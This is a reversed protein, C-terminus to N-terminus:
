EDKLLEEIEGRLTENDAVLSSHEDKLDYITREYDKTDTNLRDRECLLERIREELNDIEYSKNDSAEEWYAADSQNEELDSELATVLEKLSDIEEELEIIRDEYEQNSM